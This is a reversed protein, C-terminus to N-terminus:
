SASSDLKGRGIRELPFVRVAVHDAPPDVSSANGAKGPSNELQELGRRIPQEPTLDALIDYELNRRSKTERGSLLWLPHVGTEEIVRLLVEAPVTVGPEYNYWTRRRGPEGLVM